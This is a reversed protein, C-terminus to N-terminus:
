GEGLGEIVHEKALPWTQVRRKQTSCRDKLKLRTNIVVTDRTMMAGTVFSLAASTALYQRSFALVRAGYEFDMIGNDLGKATSACRLSRNHWWERFLDSCTQLNVEFGPRRALLVSYYHAPYTPLCCTDDPCPGGRVVASGGVSGHLVRKSPSGVTVARCLM